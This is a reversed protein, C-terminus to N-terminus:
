RNARVPKCHRPPSACPMPRTVDACTGPLGDTAVIGESGLEFTSFTIVLHHIADLSQTPPLRCDELHVSQEVDVRDQFQVVRHVRDQFLRDELDDDIELVDCGDVGGAPTNEDALKGLNFFATAM